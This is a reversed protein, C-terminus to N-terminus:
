YLGPNLNIKSYFMFAPICGPVVTLGRYAGESTPEHVTHVTPELVVEAQQVVVSQDVTSAVIHDDVGRLVLALVEVAAVGIHLADRAHTHRGRALEDSHALPVRHSSCRPADEIDLDLTM